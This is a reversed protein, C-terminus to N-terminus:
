KHPEKQAKNMETELDENQPLENAKFTNEFHGAFNKEKERDTLAWTENANRVPLIRQTLQQLRKTGNWLSYDTDTTAILSHLHTQFTEGKIIKIQDKLNRTAENYTRKDEPNRSM